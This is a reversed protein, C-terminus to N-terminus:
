MKHVAYSMLGSWAHSITVDGLQPYVSRIRQAVFPALAKPSASRAGVGAGWLLRDGAVLRYFDCGLRTDAVGGEFRIVARIREALPTTTAAYTAIPIVTRAVAPFVSRM